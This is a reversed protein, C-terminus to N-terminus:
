AAERESFFVGHQEECLEMSLEYIDIGQQNCFDFAEDMLHDLRQAEESSCFPEGTDMRVFDTMPDDPHFAWGLNGIVETLMKRLDKETKITQIM